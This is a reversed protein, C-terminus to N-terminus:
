PTTKDEDVIVLLDGISCNFFLCLTEIIDLPVREMKNAAFRRLSERQIGTLEALERLSLPKNLGRKKQDDILVENLRIYIM